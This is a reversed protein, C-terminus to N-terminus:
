VNKDVNMSCYKVEKKIKVKFFIARIGICVGGSMVVM